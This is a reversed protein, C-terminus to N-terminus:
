SSIVGAAVAYFCVIACSCDLPHLTLPASFKLEDPILEATRRKVGLLMPESGECAPSGICTLDGNVVESAEQALAPTERGRPSGM